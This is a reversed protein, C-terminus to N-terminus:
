NPNMLRLPNILRGAVLSAPSSPETPAAVAKAGCPYWGFLEEPYHLLLPTEDAHANQYLGGSGYVRTRNRWMKVPNM